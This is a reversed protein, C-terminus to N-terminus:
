KAKEPHQSQLRETSIMYGPCEGLQPASRRDSFLPLILLVPSSFGDTDPHRPHPVLQLSLGLRWWSSAGPLTQPSTLISAEKSPLAINTQHPKEWCERGQWICHVHDKKEGLVASTRLWLSGVARGLSPCLREPFFVPFLMHVKWMQSQKVNRLVEM